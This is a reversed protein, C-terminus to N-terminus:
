VAGKVPVDFRRQSFPVSSNSYTHWCAFWAYVSITPSPVETSRLLLITGYRRRAVRQRQQWDCVRQRLNEDAPDRPRRTSERSAGRVLFSGRPGMSPRRCNPAARDDDQNGAHRAERPGAASGATTRRGGRGLGLDIAGRRVRALTM